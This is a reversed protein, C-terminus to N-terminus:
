FVKGALKVAGYGLASLLVGLFIGGALDSKPKTGKPPTTVIETWIDSGKKKFETKFESAVKSYIENEIFQPMLMNTAWAIGSGKAEAVLGQPNLIRMTLYTKGPEVAGVVACEEDGLLAGIWADNVLHIM